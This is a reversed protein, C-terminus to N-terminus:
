NNAADFVMTHDLEYAQLLRKYAYAEALGCVANVPIFGIGFCLLGAVKLFFSVVSLAILEGKTDGCIEYSERLGQVADADRDVILFKYFRLTSVSYLGPAIFFFTGVVTFINFVMSAALMKLMASFHYGFDFGLLEDKSIVRGESLLLLWKNVLVQACCRLVSYTVAFVYWFTDPPPSDLQTILQALATISLSLSCAAALIVIEVSLLFAICRGSEAQFQGYGYQMAEKASILPGTM